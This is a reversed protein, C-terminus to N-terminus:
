PATDDPAHVLTRLQLDAANVWRPPAAMSNKASANTEDSQVRMPTPAKELEPVKGFAEKMKVFWELDQAHRDPNYPNCLPATEVQRRLIDAVAISQEGDSRITVLSFPIATSRPSEAGVFQTSDVVVFRVSFDGLDVVLGQVIGITDGDRTGITAGLYDAANRYSTKQATNQTPEDVQARLGPLGLVMAFALTMGRYPYRHSM